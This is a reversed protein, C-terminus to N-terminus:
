SCAALMLRMSRISRTLPDLMLGMTELTVAGLLPGEGSKGLVVPSTATKGRLAFRCESVDRTIVTGDALTFDARDMPELALAKWTDEPLVSYLAGTDILLRSSVSRGRRDARSLTAEVYTIGM